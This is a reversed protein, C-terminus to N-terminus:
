KKGFTLYQQVISFLATTGWYLAIGAHLKYSVTVTVIPMMYVMQRSMMQSFNPEGAGSPPPQNKKQIDYMMKSQWFQFAGALLALPLNQKSIDIFGLFFHHINGPNRVFTYLGELAKEDFGALFVWYLALIVPLQILLPLCGAAPNVGKEKYLAWIRKTQEEKNKAYKEQIKRVEPQIEMMQKQSVLSKKSLSYLAFRILVTLIIIALGLDYFSITQYLLILLNLLPRYLAEHFIFSIM